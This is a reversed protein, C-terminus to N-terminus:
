AELVPTSRQRRGVILSGLTLAFCILYIVGAVLTGLFPIVSIVRALLVILLVGSLLTPLPGIPYGLQALRQGIWYGPILPSFLWLLGSAGLLMAFLAIGALWGWFIGVLLALAATLPFLLAVVVLGIMGVELPQRAMRQETNTFLAPAFQWVLWALVAFGLLLLVTRWIWRIVGWFWALGPNPTAAPAVPQEAQITGAVGAPLAAQNQTRYRLIGKVKSTERVQLDQAYLQANRQVNGAFVLRGMGAFLDRAVSGNISGQGGVIYADGGVAASGQLQVGQAISRGNVVIPVAPGNTWVPGGGAAFLDGGIKGAVNVGGGAVRADDQVTGNIAIGGGALLADGTVAGNVEIYGGAAVLDGEVTGDIYIEGAAVYLDDKIVQGAPLRFVDGQGAGSHVEAAYVNSGAFLLVLCSLLVIAGTQNRTLRWQRHMMKVLHIM